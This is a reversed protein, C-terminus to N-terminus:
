SKKKKKKKKKQNLGIPLTKGWNKKKKKKKKKPKSWYSANDWLKNRKQPLKNPLRPPKEHERQEEVLSNRTQVPWVSLKSFLTSRRKTPSPEQLKWRPLSFMKDSQSNLLKLPTPASKPLHDSRETKAWTSQGM